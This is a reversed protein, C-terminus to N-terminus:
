YFYIFWFFTNSDTITAAVNKELIEKAAVKGSKCLLSEALSM